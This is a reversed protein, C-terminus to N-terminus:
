QSEILNHGELKRNKARFKIYPGEKSKIFISHFIKSRKRVTDLGCNYLNVDFVLAPCLSVHLAASEREGPMKSGQANHMVSIEWGM